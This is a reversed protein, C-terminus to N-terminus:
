LVEVWKLSFRNLCACVPSTALPFHRSPILLGVQLGLEAGASSHALPCSNEKTQSIFPNSQHTELPKQGREGLIPFVSALFCYAFGSVKILHFMITIM